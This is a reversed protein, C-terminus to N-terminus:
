SRKGNMKELHKLNAEYFQVIENAMNDVEAARNEPLIREMDGDEFFNRVPADRGYWWDTPTKNAFKVAEQALYAKV